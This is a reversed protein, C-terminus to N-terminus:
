PGVETIHLGIRITSAPSGDPNFRLASFDDSNTVRGGKGFTPDLDGPAALAPSVTAASAAAIALGAIRSARSANAASTTSRSRSRM